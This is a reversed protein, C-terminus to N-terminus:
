SNANTIERLEWSSGNWYPWDLPQWWNSGEKTIKPPQQRTIGYLSTDYALLCNQTSVFHGDTLDFLHIDYIDTM